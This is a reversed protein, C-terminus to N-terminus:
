CCGMNPVAGIRRIQGNDLMIQLRNKIIDVPEGIQEAIAHYPQSVLPLGSQTASIIARDIADM